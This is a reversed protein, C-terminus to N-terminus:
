IIKKANQRLSMFEETIKEEALMYHFGWGNKLNEPSLRTAYHKYKDLSAQLNIFNFHYADYVKDSYKVTGIPHAKHAGAEYNIENILSKNFLYSKDYPTARVGYKINDIDFNDEMNIMNFGKSSIISSGYLEEQLLESESINLLEDVDCILVWDTSANKWCNNKIDMHKRDQFQNNTDFLVVECNNNKAISVTNDASMNDYVVIRCNPFKSRYHNILQPLQLEENYALTFVTIM